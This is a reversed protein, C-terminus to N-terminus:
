ISTSIKKSIMAEIVNLVNFSNALNPETEVKTWNIQNETPVTEM